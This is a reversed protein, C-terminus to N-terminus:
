FRIEYAFELKRHYDLEVLDTPKIGAPNPEFYQIGAHRLLNFVFQSCYMINPKYSKRLLIGLLNYASGESNIEMVKEMMKEKQARTVALRYVFIVADEKKGLFELMEANLGPPLVREGGNYSILTKLDRDFSFSAHNYPKETGLAIVRSAVSGTDSLIIYISEDEMSDQAAHFYDDTLYGDNVYTFIGNRRFDTVMERINERTMIEAAKGLNERKEHVFQSFQSVREFPIVEAKEAHQFFYKQYHRIEMYYELSFSAFLLLFTAALELMSELRTAAPTSLVLIAYVIQLVLLVSHGLIVAFIRRKGRCVTVGLVALSVNIWVFTLIATSFTNFASFIVAFLFLYLKLSRYSQM